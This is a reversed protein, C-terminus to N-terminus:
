RTDPAVRFSLRHQHSVGPFVMDHTLEPCGHSPHDREVSHHVNFLSCVVAPSIISPIYPFLLCIKCAAAATALTRKIRATTTALQSSGYTAVHPCYKRHRALVNRIANAPTPMPMAATARGTKGGRTHDRREGQLSTIDANRMLILSNKQGDSRSSARLPCHTSLRQRQTYIRALTNVQATCRAPTSVYVLKSVLYTPIM